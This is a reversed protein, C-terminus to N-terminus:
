LTPYSGPFTLANQPYKFPIGGAFYARAYVSIPNKVAFVFSLNM